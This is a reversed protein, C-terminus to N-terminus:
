DCASGQASDATVIGLGGIESMIMIFIQGFLSFEKEIDVYSLGTVSIVSVATFLVDLFSLHTGGNQSVPLMLVCACFLMCLAFGAM